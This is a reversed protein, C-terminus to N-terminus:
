SLLAVHYSSLNGVQRTTDLDNVFFLKKMGGQAQKWASVIQGQGRRSLVTFTEFM